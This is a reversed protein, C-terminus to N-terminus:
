EPRGGEFVRKKFIIEKYEIQKPPLLLELLIFILPALASTYIASPISIFLLARHYPLGLSHILLNHLLAQYMVTIFSLIAQALPSEKYVAEKFYGAFFGVSTYIILILPHVGYLAMKLIGGILGCLAGTEKTTNLGFYLIGLLLFEPGVGFLKIYNCGAAEFVSICILAIFISLWSM